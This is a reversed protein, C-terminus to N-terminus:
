WRISLCERIGNSFNSVMNEITYLRADRRCTDSMAALRVPDELLDIVQESYSEVRNECMLGNESHRLYAIEPSHSNNNMTMIPLGLAFSDLIALGVIHPLLFVHALKLYLVKERGIRKGVYRIWDHTAAAERVVSEQPGSGIILLEFDEIRKRIRIAAELVLDLRKGQYLSGCFVGVNRGRLGLTQRLENVDNESCRDADALLGRTDIANQVITIRNEPYNAQLLVERTLDTYGFWWDPARLLMRKWAEKFRNTKEQQFNKGHGWFATLPRGRLSSYGLLWYNV